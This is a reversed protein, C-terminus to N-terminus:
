WDEARIRKDMLVAYLYSPGQLHQLPTTIAVPMLALAKEFHSKPLNRNTRDPRLSSSQIEYTFAGGRMQHFKEGAHTEIRKWVTDINTKM